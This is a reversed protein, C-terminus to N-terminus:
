KRFDKKGARSRVCSLTTVGGQRLSEVRTGKAPEKKGAESRFAPIGGVAM